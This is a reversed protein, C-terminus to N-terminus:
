KGKPAVTIGRYEKGVRQGYLNFRTSASTKGLSPTLNEIGSPDATVSITKTLLIIDPFNDNQIYGTVAPHPAFFSTVGNAVSFDVGEVFEYNYLQLDDADDYYLELEGEFWYFNSAVDGLVAMDSMDVKGDVCEIEVPAQDGYFYVYYSGPLPLTALTFRNHSLDVVEMYSHGSLDIQSLQNQSVFLQRMDNLPTVDLETLNNRTLALSYVNPIQSCDLSTLENDSLALWAINHNQSFDVQTLHNRSLILYYLNPNHSLDISELENGDLNLEGLGTNQSLDIETLGANQLTLCYLSHLQSVDVGTMSVSDISFVHLNGDPAEYSYVKVEAGEVTTASYLTYLEQLRYEMMDDNGWDIYLYTNPNKAALSLQAHQGGVPTTFSAVTYNPKGMVRVVTTRLVNDGSLDPFLDNSLECYVHKGVAPELFVTKGQNLTYDVGDVLLNGEIDRWTYLTSVGDVEAEDRLSVLMSNAAIMIMNQPAYLYTAIEQSHPLSSFRMDNYAVNAEQLQPCASFDIDRLLNHSLDLYALDFCDSLSIEELKNWSLNLSLLHEYDNLSLHKLENHQLNLYLVTLSTIDQFESLLNYSADVETLLNKHHLDNVGNLNLSTLQNHSLDLSQLQSNWSLDIQELGANRIQLKRLYRAHSLDIGMLPMGDCLFTSVPQEIRGYIRVTGAASGQIHLLEHAPVTYTTLEGNGFNVYITEEEDGDVGIYFDVNGPGTASPIFSLHEVPKGFDATSRVWFPSTQLTVGDLIENVFYGVVKESQPRLFTIKGRNFTYDVGETLPIPEEIGSEPIACLTCYTQFVDRMLRSSLDLTTGEKYENDVKLDQQLDYYFFTLPDVYPLTVFDFCNGSVDLYALSDIMELGTVSTLMNNAAYVSVMNSQNSLDLSTLRNGDVFLRQLHPNGELNIEHLKHASSSQGENAVYLETLYENNSVDLSSFGCDSVNLILLYPNQSVDLTSLGSNDVSIQVLQENQTVDLTKLCKSDWATFIKLMPFPSLDVTGSALAHDGLQNINLYQLGPHFDGITLGENFPNDKLDLYQMYPMNSVDLRAIENHGVSLISLRTMRCIDLDYVESGHVDLYDFHEPNGWVKVVGTPGVSGSVVTGGSLVSDDSEDEGISGDSSVVYSHRGTGDGFDVSIPSNGIDMRSMISFQFLNDPGATQYRHSKLTMMPEEESSQAMVSLSLTALLLLFLTIIKKM